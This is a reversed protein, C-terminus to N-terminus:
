IKVDNGLFTRMSIGETHKLELEKLKALCAIELEARFKSEFAGSYSLITAALATNGPILNGLKKLSAVEDTWREKEDGLSSTLRKARDLSTKCM